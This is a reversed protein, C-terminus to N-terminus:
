NMGLSHNHINDLHAGTGDPLGVERSVDYITDYTTIGMDVKLGPMKDPGKSFVLPVLRFAAPDIRRTDFPDHDNVPDGVPPTLPDADDDIASMIQSEGVFCTPWRIFRIPEGWGDIFEPYGDEDTDGIENPQFEEIAERDGSTVWLYFLEANAANEETPTPSTSTPLQAACRRFMRRAIASRTMIVTWTEGGNSYTFAWPDDIDALNFATGSDAPNALDESKDPMEWQQLQRIARLRAEAFFRIRVNNPLPLNGPTSRVTHSFPVRRSAFEEYRAQVIRDLKAITAQTKAKRAAQRAAYVAGLSMGALMGIITIVVLLEVLTFAARDNTPQNHKRIM